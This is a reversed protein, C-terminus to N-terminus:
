NQQGTFYRKTVGHTVYPTVTMDQVKFYVIDRYQRLYTAGGKATYASYLFQTLTNGATGKKGSYLSSFTPGDEGNIDVEVLCYASTSGGCYSGSTQAATMIQGDPLQVINGSIANYKITPANSTNALFTSFLTTGTADAPTQRTLAYKMSVASQLTNYAKKAQASLERDEVSTMLSPVTMASVVGIISLTLLVESLTFGFKKM